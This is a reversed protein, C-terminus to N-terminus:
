TFNPDNKLETLTIVHHDRFDFSSSNVLYVLIGKSKLILIQLSLLRQIESEQDKIWIGKGEIVTHHFPLWFDVKWNELGLLPM